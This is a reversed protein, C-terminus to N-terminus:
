FPLTWSSATWRTYYNKKNVLIERPWNLSPLFFVISIHTHIIYTHVFGKSAKLPKVSGEGYLAEHLRRHQPTPTLKSFIKDTPIAHFTCIQTTFEHKHVGWSMPHTPWNVMFHKARERSFKSSHIALAYIDKSLTFPLNWCKMETPTM